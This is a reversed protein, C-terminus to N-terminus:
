RALCWQNMRPNLCAPKSRHLATISAGRDLGARDDRRQCAHARAYCNRRTIHHNGTCVDRGVGLGRVGFQPHDHGDRRCIQRRDYSAIPFHTAPLRIYLAKGPFSPSRHWGPALLFNGPDFVAVKGRDQPCDVARVM